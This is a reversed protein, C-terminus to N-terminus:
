LKQMTLWLLMGVGVLIPGSVLAIGAWIFGPYTRAAASNYAFVQAPRLTANRLFVALGLAACVPALVLGARQSWWAVQRLRQDIHRIARGQILVVEGDRRVIGLGGNIASVMLPLCWAAATILCVVAWGQEVRNSGSTQM